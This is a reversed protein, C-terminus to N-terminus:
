GGSFPPLLAIEGEIVNGSRAVIENNQAIQFDKANLGPYKEFLQELLDDVSTKKFELEEEDRNTVEALVGFYKIKLKM